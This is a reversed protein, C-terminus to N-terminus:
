RQDEGNTFGYLVLYHTSINYLLTSSLSWRREVLAMGNLRHLKSIYIFDSKFIGVLIFVS